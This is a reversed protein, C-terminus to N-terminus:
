RQESGQAWCTPWAATKPASMPWCRWWRRNRPALTPPHPPVLTALVPSTTVHSLQHCRAFLVGRNVAQSPAQSSAHWACTHHPHDADLLSGPCCLFLLFAVHRGGTGGERSVRLLGEGPPYAARAAGLATQGHAVAETVRGQRCRLCLCPFACPTTTTPPAHHSAPAPHVLTLPAAVCTLLPTTITLLRGAMCGHGGAEVRSAQGQDFGEPGLLWGGVSVMLWNVCCCKSVV